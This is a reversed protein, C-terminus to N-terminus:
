TQLTAIAELVAKHCAGNSFVAGNQIRHDPNGYTLPAGHLDTVTGGAETLILQPACLDWEGLKGTYLFFDAADEALLGSKIGVSGRAESTAGFKAIVEELLTNPHTRSVLARLGTTRTGCKLSELGGKKEIKTGAGKEAYYLTDYEPAYVVGLIPQGKELLAIMVSFDGTKALFDKTGDLPDIIWLRATYVDSSHGSEESLIPIGTAKLIHLLIENSRTDALTVPSGDTKTEFAITEYLNRIERGAEKAAQIAIALLPNM